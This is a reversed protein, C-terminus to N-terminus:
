GFSAGQHDGYGTDGNRTDGVRRSSLIREENDQPPECREADDEYESELTLAPHELSQVFQGSQFDVSFRQCLSSLLVRAVFRQVRSSADVTQTALDEQPHLRLVEELVDEFRALELYSLRRHAERYIELQCEMAAISTIDSRELKKAWAVIDKRVKINILAAVDASFRKEVGFVNVLRQTLSSRDFGPEMDVLSRRSFQRPDVQHAAAPKEHLYVQEAVRHVVVDYSMIGETVAEDYLFRKKFLFLSSHAADNYVDLLSLMPEIGLEAAHLLAQEMLLCPLSVTSPFQIAQTLELQLERFWLRSFDQLDALTDELALVRPFVTSDRYFACLLETDASIVGAACGFRIRNLQDSWSV